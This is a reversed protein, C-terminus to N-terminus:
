STGSEQFSRADYLAKQFARESFGHQLQQTPVFLM